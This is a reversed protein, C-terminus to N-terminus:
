KTGKKIIWEIGQKLPHSLSSEHGRVTHEKGRDEITLEYDFEDRGEGMEKLARPLSFFGAAQLMAEFKSIEDLDLISEDLMWERKIGAM